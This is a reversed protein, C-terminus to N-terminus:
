KVLSIMTSATNKNISNDTATATITHSGATIKNVQINYQCSTAGTCTKVITGDLAIKITAIGSADSATAKVSMSGKTPVTSGNVPSTISVVPPVTDNPLPTPTVITTPIPTGTAPIATPTPTSTATPTPSAVPNVMIASNTTTITFVTNDLAVLQSVASTIGVTTPTNPTTTNAGFQFTALQFTGTPPTQIHTPDLGIVLSIKGNTNAAAMTTQQIIRGWASTTLTPEATLKVVAPNFTLQVNFFSLPSDTTAWLQLSGDPPLALTAPLVSVKAQHVVAQTTMQQPRLAAYRIVLGIILFVGIGIYPAVKPNKISRWVKKHWPEPTEPVILSDQTHNEPLDATSSTDTM